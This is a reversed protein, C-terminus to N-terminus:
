QLDAEILRVKEKLVDLLTDVTTLHTRFALCAFRLTFSGELMTSSIFIRGDAIVSELLRKNFTNSDGSKPLWRYTVVSLEPEIKSEFGLKQVEAYFYKALLLKEELCARFPAVGHLKLPLWLRMGRFHKTLEPSLEAPSLEDTGRFADQMYPADFRNSYRLHNADKVLVVGLGYPLFLGKHPDIIVSDSMELGHLKEKGEETLIFFGGYAADIHYWLGHQKAIAGIEVLPDIAGVDTTGASAVVLFPNLGAAKDAEIQAALEDPIMRYKEDLQVHRVICEALGAVNIAKDISHHAQKSRYIVSRPVDASRINREDRATVIAIMNALSGSTTLNGSAGSPYGVLDNMWRILMNEMRVAGPSAYFVGAYRNFVDALYDGLASYYIGGGPIYALHGGSAPNLGPSDVNVRLLSIAEDIGIGNETIPSDLIGAGKDESLNYANLREINDLFTESYDVVSSRVTERKSADPELLRSVTELELLRDRM